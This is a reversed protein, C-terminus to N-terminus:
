KFFFFFHSFIFANRTAMADFYPEFYCIFSVINVCTLQFALYFFAVKYHQHDAFRSSIVMKILQAFPGQSLKEQVGKMGHVVSQLLFLPAELESFGLDQTSSIISGFIDGLQELVMDSNIRTINAITTGLNHRFQEFQAEEEIDM